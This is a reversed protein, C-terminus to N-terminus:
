ATEYLRERIQIIERRVNDDSEIMEAIKDVGYLVTSHDRGGLLEGIEALSADTEERALYMAVQRAFAIPKRRSSSELDALSLNYFDATTEIIVDLDINQPRDLVDRLVKETLALDLPQGNLQAYAVIRILAGELERINSQVRHAILEIIESPVRVTQTEAKAQLIAMRTELDPPAVDCVLGGEFRSRLREELLMIAKPPRDSSLVIQKGASHLTNFTHFFEDQTSEKGALFQIDDVLLVDAGRYRARFAETNQSRIDSIFENTFRESSVYVASLGQMEVESKIALLLHTKGLGVGGYIFLPNYALAPREAVALAAAHALRNSPGVIFTDFSYREQTAHVTHPVNDEVQPARPKPTAEVMTPGVLPVAEAEHNSQGRVIFKLTVPGSVEHELSRRIIRNLRNELWQVAFPSFTSITYLEDEVSVLETGRLWQDFANRPMQLQIDALAATWVRRREEQEM